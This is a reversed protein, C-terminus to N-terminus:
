TLREDASVLKQDSVVPMFKKGVFRYASLESKLVVNCAEVFKISEDPYELHGAVYDLFDYVEYWKLTFYHERISNFLDDVSLSPLENLLRNFCYQWIQEAFKKAAYSHTGFRLRDYSANWLANRLNVDMSDRQLATNVQPIRMRQSFKELSVEKAALTDTLREVDSHAEGTNFRTDVETLLPQPQLESVSKQARLSNVVNRIGKAVDELAEDQDKWQTIPKAETPLMQLTAFPADQWDVPRLLIPLVRAQGARHLELAKKMEVGYCYDSDVFDASVLLLIIHATGLNEEIEHEWETGAQIERDYWGVVQGLRKLIGLHKDIRDRLDKDEHAYCYFIKIPLTEKTSAMSKERSTENTPVNGSRSQQNGNNEDFSIDGEGVLLPKAEIREITPPLARLYALVALTGQQVVEPPPIQLQPNESLDLTQLNALQGLGAPLSSLQNNQIWLKQLNTLQSLEAPLSSLKNMGLWLEQLNILQFLASPLSSFQNQCLDLSQLNTLQFLAAPLSSLLNDHLWLKQLNTLQGLQAPLSSLQNQRLDLQQLSTFQWLEPPLQTLKLECLNLYLLREQEDYQEGWEHSPYEAFRQKLREVLEQDRSLRAMTEGERVCFANDNNVNELPPCRRTRASIMPLLSRNAPM